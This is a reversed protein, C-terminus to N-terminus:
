GPPRHRGGPVGTCGAARAAGRHHPGQHRGRDRAVVTYLGDQPALADRTDPNRLSVGCIGWGTEGAALAEDLYVAQHARFFNGVGLHVVGVTATAPDYAPAIQAALGTLSDLTLPRSM